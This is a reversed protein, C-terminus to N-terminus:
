VPRIGLSIQTKSQRVSMKNTKNHRPEYLLPFIVKGQAVTRTTTVPLGTDGFISMGALHKFSHSSVPLMIRERDSNIRQSSGDIINSDISPSATNSSSATDLTDPKSPKAIVTQIGPNESKTTNSKAKLKINIDATLGLINELTSIDISEHLTQNQLTIGSESVISKVLKKMADRRVNEETIALVERLEERVQELNASENTAAFILATKQIGTENTSDKDIVNNDPQARVIKVKTPFVVDTVFVKPTSVLPPNPTSRIFGSDPLVRTEHHSNSPQRELRPFVINIKTVAEHSKSNGKNVTHTRNAGRSRGSYTSLRLLNNEPVFASKNPNRNTIASSISNTRSTKRRRGENMIDTEFFTRNYNLRRQYTISRQKEVQVHVPYRTRYPAYRNQRGFPPAIIRHVGSQRSVTVQDSLRRSFARRPNRRLHFEHTLSILMILYIINSIIM